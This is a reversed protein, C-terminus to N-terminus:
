LDLFNREACQLVNIEFNVRPSVQSRSLMTLEVRAFEEM